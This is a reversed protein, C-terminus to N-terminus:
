RRPFTPALRTPDVFDRTGSLLKTNARSVRSKHLSANVKKTAQLSDWDLIQYQAAEILAAGSLLEVMM